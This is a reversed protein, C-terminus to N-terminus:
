GDATVYAHLRGGSALATNLGDHRTTRVADSVTIAVGISMVAWATGAATGVFVTVPVTLLLTLNVAAIALQAGAWLYTLRRFLSTIAPRGGVADDFSCFDAAFRAVLPKGILVSAGFLLATSGTKAIPQLFYVFSSHNLVFIGLRVTIGVSAVILLGPVPQRVLLRRTVALYTCMSAAVIGWFQGVTVVGLYYAATPIVTAEVLYPWLRRVVAWVVSAWSPDLRWLPDTAAPDSSSSVDDDRDAVLEHPQSV